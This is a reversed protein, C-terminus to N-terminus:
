RYLLSTIEEYEYETIWKGVASSVKTLNWLKLNYYQRVKEFNKSHNM